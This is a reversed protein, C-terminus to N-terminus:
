QIALETRIMKNFNRMTPVNAKSLAKQIPPTNEGQPTIFGYLLDELQKSLRKVEEVDKNNAAEEIQAYLQQINEVEETIPYRVEYKHGQLDFTFSDQVNDSLNYNSM